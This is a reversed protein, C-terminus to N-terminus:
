NISRRNWCFPVFLNPHSQLFAFSSIHYFYFPGFCFCFRFAFSFCFRLAFLCFNEAFCIKKCLGGKAKFSVYITCLFRFKVRCKIEFSIPNQVALRTEKIRSLWCLETYVSLSLETVAMKFFYPWFVLYIQMPAHGFPHIDKSKFKLTRIKMRNLIFIHLSVDEEEEILDDDQDAEQLFFIFQIFPPAITPAWSAFLNGKWCCLDM